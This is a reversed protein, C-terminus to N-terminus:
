ECRLADVPNTLAAKTSHYSVTLLAIAFSLLGVLIFIWFSIEVRYAFNQLWKNVVFYAMPAAVVFATAVLKAFDKSVLLIIQAVSAGLVKRVGIEKTRREAMFASLGFLGLCSTAIAIVTFLSFIRSLQQETKYLKALDNDVFAFDFPEATFKHWIREIRHLTTPINESNIKVSVYKSFFPQILLAIPEIREHLSFLHFNEVIGVITRLNMMINTQSGIPSKLGLEKVAAQNLVVNEVEDSPFDPSFERGEVIKIGYTKIFDYDGSLIRLPLTVVPSGPNQSGSIVQQLQGRGPTCSSATVSVVATEQLLTAKFDRIKDVVQTNEVPIVVIDDKNLGLNKNHIYHLQNFIVITCIIMTISAVFQFIVLGTRLRTDTSGPLFQGKLVKVTRLSSFAVAPYCGALLGISLATGVFFLLLKGDRWPMLAFKKGFLHSLTPLFVEALGLALLLAMSSFLVPELLFQGILQKPRAGVVKRIGIEKARSASYAMAMNTYNIAATLMIILAVLLFIQLYRVDIGSPELENRLNSRLHIDSLAQFSLHYDGAKPVLAQRKAISAVETELLAQDYNPAILVYTYYRLQSFFVGDENLRRLLEIPALFDFHFHSNEPVERLVGTVKLPYKNELLVTKGIPSEKGFYKRAMKETVVFALPDTLVTAADGAILPFTFIDLISAGAFLVDDEYFQQNDYKVFLRQPCPVIQVISALAPLNNKLAPALGSPTTAFKLTQDSVQWSSIIRYIRDAKKHYTDYSFENWVFGIVLISFAMGITLGFINIFTYSKFHLLKRFTTKFYNWLMPM